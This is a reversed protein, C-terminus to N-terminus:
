NNNRSLFRQFALEEQYEKPLLNKEELYFHIREKIAHHKLIDFYALIGDPLLYRALKEELSWKKYKM